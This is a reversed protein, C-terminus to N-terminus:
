LVVVIFHERSRCNFHVHPVIYYITYIRCLCGMKLKWTKLPVWATLVFVTCTSAHVSTGLLAKNADSVRQRHAAADSQREDQAQQLSSQLASVDRQLQEVSLQLGVRGSEAERLQSELSQGIVAHPILVTDIVVTQSNIDRELIIEIFVDFAM